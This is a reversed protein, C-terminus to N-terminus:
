CAAFFNVLATIGEQSCELTLPLIGVDPLRQKIRTEKQCEALQSVRSSGLPDVHGVVIVPWPRMGLPHRPLFARRDM